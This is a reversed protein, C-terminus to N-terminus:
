KSTRVCKGTIADQFMMWYGEKSLEFISKPVFSCYGKLEKPAYKSYEGPVGYCIYKEKGKESIVGVVYYKEKEYYVRLWKSEPFLKNLEEDKPFRLFLDDLERKASGYYPNQENFPKKPSNDNEDKRVCAGDQSKQTEKHCSTSVDDNEHPLNENKVGAYSDYTPVFYNETAVVEDDYVHEKIKPTPFVCTDSQREQNKRKFLTLCFEAVSKKFEKISSNFEATKTFGILLPLDEKVVYVGAFFGSQTLCFDELTKTLTSPRKGLSIKVIRGEENELFLCYEGSSLLSFNIFSAFLTSIGNEYEIRIIGSLQKQSSYGDQVQRIVSAFSRTKYDHM